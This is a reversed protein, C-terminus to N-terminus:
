DSGDCRDKKLHRGLADPRCFKKWCDSCPHTIKEHVSRFHRNADEQRNYTKNCGPWTCPARPGKGGAARARRSTKAKPKRGKKKIPESEDLYPEYRATKGVLRGSRRAGVSPRIDVSQAHKSLAARTSSSNTSAPSRDASLRSPQQAPISWSPTDPCTSNSPVPPLMADGDAEPLGYAQTGLVINTNDKYSSTSLTLPELGEVSDPFLTRSISTQDDFVMYVEENLSTLFTNSNLGLAIALSSEHEGLVPPPLELLEVQPPLDVEFSQLADRVSTGGSISGDSPSRDSGDWFATPSAGPKMANGYYLHQNDYPTSPNGFTMIPDFNYPTHTHPSQWFYPSTM